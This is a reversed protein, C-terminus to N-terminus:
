GPKEFTYLEAYEIVLAPKVSKLAYEYTSVIHGADALVFVDMNPVLHQMAESHDQCHQLGPFMPKTAGVLARVIVKPQYQGCSMLAIKDLHNVLQNMACLLFDMRPYITVPIFGQLALGISMGMQMEEAVPLEIRREEPIGEMTGYVVSGSYGVTQGIFVVRDDRSLMQMAKACEEKYGVNVRGTEKSPANYDGM